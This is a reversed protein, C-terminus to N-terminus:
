FPPQISVTETVSYPVLPAQTDPNAYDVTATASNNGVANAHAFVVFVATDGPALDFPTYSLTSGNFAAVTTHSSLGGTITANANDLNVVLSVDQATGTGTNQIQYLYVFDDGRQVQSNFLWGEYNGINNLEIWPDTPEIVFSWACDFVLNPWKPLDPMGIASADVGEFPPRCNNTFQNMNAATAGALNIHIGPLNNDLVLTTSAVDGGGMLPITAWFMSKDAFGLFDGPAANAAFTQDPNVGDDDVLTIPNTTNFDLGILFGDGVQVDRGYPNDRVSGDFEAPYQAMLGAYEPRDLNYLTIDFFADMGVQFPLDQANTLVKDIDFIPRVAWVIAQDEYYWGNFDVVAQFGGEAEPAGTFWSATVDRQQAGNVVFYPDEYCYEGDNDYGFMFPVAYFEAAALDEPDVCFGPKQRVYIQFTVTISEGPDLQKFKPEYAGATQYNWTVAHNTADYTGGAPNLTSEIVGLEAPLQDAISVDYVPANGENTATLTVTATFVSNAPVANAPDLTHEPGYWTLVHHDIQKDIKLYSGIWTKTVTYDKLDFEYTRQGYPQVIVLTAKVTASIPLDELGIDDNPQLGINTDYDNCVTPSVPDDCAVFHVSDAGDVIEYRIYFYGGYFAKWFDGDLRFEPQKSYVATDIWFTNPFEEREPPYPDFLNVREFSAGVRQDTPVPKDGDFGAWLHAINYFYFKFEELVNTDDSNEAAATIKAIGYVWDYAESGFTAYLTFKVMGQEDTMLGDRFGMAAYDGETSCGRIIAIRDDMWTGDAINVVVPVYAAPDGNEDLAQLTVCVPEETQSAYIMVDKNINAEPLGPLDVGMVDTVSIVQLSRAIGPEGEVAVPKYELKATVQSGSDLVVLMPSPDIMGSVPMGDLTYTGPGLELTKEGAVTGQFLVEQGKALVVDAASVGDVAIKLVATQPPPPVNPNTGNNGQPQSCAALVFVLGLVWLWLRAQKQM